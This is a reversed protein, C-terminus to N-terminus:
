RAPEGGPDHVVQADLDEGVELAQREVEEGLLLGPHDHRPHRAVDLVELLQQLVPEDWNAM